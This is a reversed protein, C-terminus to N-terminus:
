GEAAVPFPDPLGGVKARRSCRFIAICIQYMSWIVRKTPQALGPNPCSRRCRSGGTPGLGWRGNALPIEEGGIGWVSSSSVSWLGLMIKSETKSWLSPLV